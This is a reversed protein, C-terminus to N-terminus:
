CHWGQGQLRVIAVPLIGSALTPMQWTGVEACSRSGVIERFGQDGIGISHMRSFPIRSISGLRKRPVVTLSYADESIGQQGRAHNGVRTDQKATIPFVSNPYFKRTVQSQKTLMYKEQQPRSTQRM